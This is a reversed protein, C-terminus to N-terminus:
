EWPLQVMVAGPNGATIETPFQLIAVTTDKEVVLDIWQMKVMQDLVAVRVPVTM